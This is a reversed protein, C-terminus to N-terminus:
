ALLASLKENWAVKVLKPVDPRELLNMLENNFTARGSKGITALLNVIWNKIELFNIEHGQAFYQSAQQKAQEDPEASKTIFLYDEIGAPSIKANFTSVVRAKGVPRETVEVALVVKSAERITIDAGAGSAADSVNIGQFAIDWKLGFQKKLANFAAVTFIVPFRGGSPTELLDGLLVDYQDLSLRQIRRLAINAAERLEIFKVLLCSIFHEIEKKSTMRELDDICVMLADYGAKDKMGGRASKDFQVQRRFVALYPGKSSPIQKEQLFPNVAKEDLTRGSFSGQGQDVYPRRINISRDQYRALACGLLVERYSQTNSKFVAECAANVRKDAIAPSNGRLFLEQTGLYLADLLERAREHVIPM